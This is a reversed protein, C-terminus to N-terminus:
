RIELPFFSFHGKSMWRSWRTIRQQGIPLHFLFEPRLRGLGRGGQAGAVPGQDQEKVEHSKIWIEGRRQPRHSLIIEPYTLCFSWGTQLGKGQPGEAGVSSLKWKRVWNGQRQSDAWGWTEWPDAPLEADAQVVSKEHKGHSAHPQCQSRCADTAHSSGPM